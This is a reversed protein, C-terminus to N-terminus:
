PLEDVDVNAAGSVIVVGLADRAGDGVRRQHLRRDGAGIRVPSPNKGRSSVGTGFEVGAGDFDVQLANQDATVTEGDIKRFRLQRPFQVLAFALDSEGDVPAAFAFSAEPSAVERFLVDFDIGAIARLRARMATEAVIAPMASVCASTTSRNADMAEASEFSLAAPKMFPKSLFM